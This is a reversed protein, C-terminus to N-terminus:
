LGFNCSLCSDVHKFAEVKGLFIEERRRIGIEDYFTTGLYVVLSFVVLDVVGVWSEVLAVIEVNREWTSREQNHLSVIIVVEKSIIQNTNSFQIKIIPVEIFFPLAYVILWDLISREVM